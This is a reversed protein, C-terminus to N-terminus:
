ATWAPAIPLTRPGVKLFVNALVALRKGAGVLVKTALPDAARDLDGVVSCRAVKKRDTAAISVNAAGPLSEGVVGDLM